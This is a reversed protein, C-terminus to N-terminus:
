CTATEKLQQLEDTLPIDEPWQGSAFIKRRTDAAWVPELVRRVHKPFLAGQDLNSHCGRVGPRDACAPFLTLDCTKLGMGKGTNAHAAQSYGSAGCLACPLAAVLRRYADSRLPVEKEIRPGAGACQGMRSPPVLAATARASAIARAAREALRQERDRPEKAKLARTTLAKRRSLSSFRKVVM